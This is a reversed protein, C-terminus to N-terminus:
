QSEFFRASPNSAWVVHKEMLLKREERLYSLMMGVADLQLEVRAENLSLALFHVPVADSPLNPNPDSPLM